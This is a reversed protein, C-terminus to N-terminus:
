AIFWRCAKWGGSTRHYTIYVCPKDSCDVVLHLAGRNCAAALAPTGFFTLAGDLWSTAQAREILKNARAEVEAPPPGSGERLREGNVLLVFDGLKGHNVPLLLEIVRGPTEWKGMSYEGDKVKLPEAGALAEPIDFVPSLECRAGAAHTAPRAGLKSKACSVATVVAVIGCFTVLVPNRVLFSSM